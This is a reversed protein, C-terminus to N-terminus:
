SEHRPLGEKQSALFVEIKAVDGKSDYYIWLDRLPKFYGFYEETDKTYIYLKDEEQNYRIKYKSPIKNQGRFTKEQKKDTWLYAMISYITLTRLINALM